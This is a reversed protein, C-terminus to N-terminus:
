LWGPKKALGMLSKLRQIFLRRMLEDMNDPCNVKKHAAKSFIGKSCAAAILDKDATVWLGRGPLKGALDPLLEQQPSVCFRILRDVPLTERTVLCRRMAKENKRSLGDPSPSGRWNKQKERPKKVTM